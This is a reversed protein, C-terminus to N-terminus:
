NGTEDRVDRRVEIWSRYGDILGGIISYIGVAIVLCGFILSM